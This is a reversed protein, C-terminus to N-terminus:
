YGFHSNFLPFRGSILQALEDSMFNKWEHPDSPQVKGEGKHPFKFNYLSDPDTSTNIINEFDHTFQPEELYGYIERMVEVPFKSLQDFKVWYVNLKRRLIDEVGTIPSGILGQPSFMKDARDFITKELPGTAENLLPTKRHQKEVSSFVNKLDRVTVLVKADPYLERLLILNHSWGRSKDFIIARGDDRRHWTDCFARLSGRLRQETADKERGMDSKIEVSNSWMNVVGSCLQPLISTSTAWFKPNQNLINCLLTSGSRPLGTIVHMGILISCGLYKALDDSM